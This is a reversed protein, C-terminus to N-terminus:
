KAQEGAAVLWEWLARVTFGSYSPPSGLKVVFGSADEVRDDGKIGAKVAVNETISSSDVVLYTNANYKYSDQYAEQVRAEVDAHADLLLIMYIHM